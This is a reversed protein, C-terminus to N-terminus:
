PQKLSTPCQSLTAGRSIATPPQSLQRHINAISEPYTPISSKVCLRYFHLPYSYSLKPPRTFAFTLSRSEAAIHRLYRSATEAPTFSVPLTPSSPFPYATATPPFSRAELDDAPRRTGRKSIHPMELNSAGTAFAQGQAAAPSGRALCCTTQVAFVM